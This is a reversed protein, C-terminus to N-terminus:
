FNYDKNKKPAAVPSTSESIANGKTAQYEDQRKKMDALDVERKALKEAFESALITSEDDWEYPVAQAWNIVFDRYSSKTEKVITEGWAGEEEVTRVITQSKQVGQLRTFVPTHDSADLGEFYDMAKPAYVSFDVPLVDGRFNFVFGKVVVKEPLNREENAEVRTAKTIVIDVNFTARSKPDCLDSTQHIFGGENRKNSVLPNGQTRTDYWENLDLASDVRVKGANEKGHEMVSGIKGDIIAKLITYTNNPKGKATVETVYTYHVQVVNLMEDDTAISLTGNIFETGPHASNPGSTKLELKHEYVYGELHTQNIFAKKSM